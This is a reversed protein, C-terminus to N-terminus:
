KSNEGFGVAKKKEVALMLPTLWAVKVDGDAVWSVEYEVYGQSRHLIATITGEIDPANRIHVTDGIEREKDAM